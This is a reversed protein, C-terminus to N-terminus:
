KKLLKFLKAAAVFLVIASSIFLVPAVLKKWFPDEYVSDDVIRSDIVYGPIFNLVNDGVDIVGGVDRLAGTSRNKCALRYMGAALMGAQINVVDFPGQGLMNFGVCTEDAHCMNCNFPLVPQQGWSKEM